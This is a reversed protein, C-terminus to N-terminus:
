IALAAMACAFFGRGTSSSVALATEFVGLSPRLAVIVPLVLLALLALCSIPSGFSLWRRLGRLGTSISHLAGIKDDKADGGGSEGSM